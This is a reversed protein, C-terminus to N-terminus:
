NCTMLHWRCFLYLFFLSTLFVTSKLYPLSISIRCVSLSFYLCLFCPLQLLPSPFFIASRFFSRWLILKLFPVTSSVNTSYCDPLLPSSFPPPRWPLPPGTSPLVRCASCCCCWRHAHRLTVSLLLLPGRRPVPAQPAPPSPSTM